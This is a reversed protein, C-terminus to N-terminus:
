AAMGLSHKEMPTLIGLNHQVRQANYYHIYQCIMQVLEKKSTFRRSYYPERKLIGWFCYYKNLINHVSAGHRFM